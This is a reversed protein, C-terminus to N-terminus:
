FNVLIVKNSEFDGIAIVKSTMFGITRYWHVPETVKELVVFVHMKTLM